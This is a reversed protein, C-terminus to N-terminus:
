QQDFRCGGATKRRTDELFSNGYGPIGQFAFQFVQYFDAKKAM